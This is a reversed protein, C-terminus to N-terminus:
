KNNGEADESVRVVERALIAPTINIYENRIEAPLPISDDLDITSLDLFSAM